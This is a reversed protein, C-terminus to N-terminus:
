QVIIKGTFSARLHDHYGWTGTKNFKFTWSSGPPLSGCSDFSINETDPCHENLSTGSYVTHTPHMASAPWFNSSSKNEFTVTAGKQISLADPSFGSDNMIITLGSKQEAELSATSVSVPNSDLVPNQPPTPGTNEGGGNLLYVGAMLIVAAVIMVAYKKPM